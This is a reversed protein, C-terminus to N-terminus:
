VIYLPIKWIKEKQQVCNPMNRWQPQSLSASRCGMSRYSTKRMSKSACSCAKRRAIWRLASFINLNELCFRVALNQKTQRIEEVYDGPAVLYGSQVLFEAIKGYWARPAQKLGYLAKRLKCVYDPHAKSEFGRPQEMYIERHLEGHLFANKVDIQWLKWSKSAALALLVRVTTIKAVIM